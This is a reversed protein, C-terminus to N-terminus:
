SHVWSEQIMDPIRKESCNNRQVEINRYRTSDARIYDTSSSMGVDLHCDARAHHDHDLDHDLDRLLDHGLDRLLDRRLDRLLDITLDLHRSLYHHRSLHHRSLRLRNLHLSLQLHNRHDLHPDIRLDLSDETLGEFHTKRGSCSGICDAEFGTPDFSGMSSGFRNM